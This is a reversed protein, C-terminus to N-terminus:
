QVVEFEVTVTYTVSNKVARVTLLHKGIFNYVYNHGSYVPDVNLTFTSGTGLIEGNYIWQIGGNYTGGNQVTITTSSNGSRSLILGNSITGIAADELEAVTIEIVATNGKWQAYLTVVADQEDSLNKDIQGNTYNTGSADDESNWGTFTYGIRTFGNATLPQDVDYTHSSDSTTGAADGANKDYHVTYTIPDWQAYLIVVADQEDSLNKDIQGNTYDTGSADDESNWGTFIYGTRSFGNSTLAKNVNYTHSSDATTGTVGAANADYHVTYTIAEWQAYLPIVTEATSSLVSVNQGDSFEVTGSATRAWGTFAYGTIAFANADLPTATGYVHASNNMTGNGGNGNYEVYYTVGTWQAYLTVIAGQVTALNSVSAKDAHEVPGAPDTSWGSFTYGTRTFINTELNRPIGYTHTVDGMSGNGGNSNYEVRYTNATWQARLIVTEGASVLNFVISGDIYVVPGGPLAGWGSFTYGDRSFGNSPLPQAMGYPILSNGMTGTADVANKDYVVTYADGASVWYAYLTVLAGTPILESVNQENYFDVAGSATKAWGGFVYGIRSFGNASLKSDIGYTHTSDTMTGTASAANKDYHVTYTMAEWKAYLTIASGVTDTDFSWQNVLSEDTYWSELTYGPKTMTPPISVKGGKVIKQNQPAPTGGNAAFNVTFTTKPRLSDIDGGIPTCALFTFVVAITIFLPFLTFKKKLM